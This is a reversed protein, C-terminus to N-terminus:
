STGCQSQSLVRLYEATSPLPIEGSLELSSTIWTAMTVSITTNDSSAFDTAVEGIGENFPLYLVLALDSSPDQYKNYIDSINVADNWVAVEDIWGKLKASTINNQGILFSSNVEIAVDVNSSNVEM